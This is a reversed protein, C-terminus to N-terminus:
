CYHLLGTNNQVEQNYWCNTGTGYIKQKLHNKLHTLATINQKNRLNDFYKVSSSM